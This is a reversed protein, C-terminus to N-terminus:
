LGLLSLLFGFFKNIFDTLNPPSPIEKPIQTKTPAPSPTPGEDFEDANISTKSSVESRVGGEAKGVNINREASFTSGGTRLRLNLYYVGDQAPAAFSSKFGFDTKELPLDSVKQKQWDLLRLSKEDEGSISTEVKVYVTDGSKFNIKEQTFINDAFTSFSSQPKSVLNTLNFPLPLLALLFITALLNGRM